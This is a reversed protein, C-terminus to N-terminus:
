DGIYNGFEDFMDLDDPEPGPGYRNEIYDAQATTSENISKVEKKKKGSEVLKKITPKKKTAFSEVVTTDSTLDEVKGVVNEGEFVLDPDEPHGEWRPETEVAEFESKTKVGKTKGGKTVIDEIPATYMLDVPAEGMNHPSEITVRVNGTNLDQYITVDTVKDIKKSHVIEREITSLKKSVDTGEKTIRNVLPIFWSPMGETGQIITDGAKIVTKGKGAIKGWKILGTGAAVTAGTIGAFWKMFARRSADVLKGKGFLARGGADFGVMEETPDLKDQFFISSEKRALKDKEIQTKAAEVDGGARTFAAQDFVGNVMFPKLAARFDQEAAEKVQYQALDFRGQDMGIRAGPFTKEQLKQAREGTELAKMQQTGPTGAVRELEEKETEGFLGFSIDGMIRSWSEGNALMPLAIVPAFAIEGLIGWATFKSIGRAARVTKSVNNFKSIAKADGALALQKQENISKIYAKPNDCSIGNAQGCRFQKRLIEALQKNTKSQTKLAAAGEKTEAIDKVYSILREKQTQKLPKAILNNKAGLKYEVEGPIFEDALINLREVIKAKRAPTTKPNAFEKTLGRRQSGFSGWGLESNQAFTRGILNDVAQKAFNKDGLIQAERLGLLHDGSYKFALPLKETNFIKKLKSQDAALTKKIYGSEVGALKEVETITAKRLNEMINIRELYRSATKPFHYRLIDGRSQSPLVSADIDGMLKVTDENLWNSAKALLTHRGAGTKDKAAWTMFDRVNNRLDSNKLLGSHFVRKYYAQPRDLIREQAGKVFQGRRVMDVSGMGFIKANRLIPLGSETTIARKWVGPPQYIAKKSEVAWAKALKSIADDYDGVKFNKTNKEFWNKTWNNIQTDMKAQVKISKQQLDKIIKRHTELRKKAFAEREKVSDFAETKYKGTQRGHKDLETTSLMYKDTAPNYYRQKSKIGAEKLEALTMKDEKAYHTVGPEVIGGPKMEVRGGTLLRMTNYRPPAKAEDWPAPEHKEEWWPVEPKDWPALPETGYLRNMRNIYELIDM